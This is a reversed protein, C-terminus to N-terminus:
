KVTLTDDGYIVAETGAVLRPRDLHPGGVADLVGAVGKAVTGMMDDKTEKNADDVAKRLKTGDVWAPLFYRLFLPAVNGSPHGVYAHAGLALWRPGQSANGAGTNYVFRLKKLAGPSLASCWTDYYGGHSLFFLDVTDHKLAAAEIAAILRAEGNDTANAELYTVLDYQKELYHVTYRESAFKQYGPVDDRFAIAAHTPGTPAARECGSWLLLLLLARRNM